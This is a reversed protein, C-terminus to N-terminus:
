GTVVNIKAPDVPGLGMKSALVLHKVDSGSFSKGYWKALPVATADVAVINRGAVVCGPYEMRGPGGPGGTTLARTADVINLDTKVATALDAIAQDLGERHFVGRDHIAGMLNKTCLSVGAAGHSKATAINIIVGSELMPKFIETKRIKVGMPVAVERFGSRDTTAIVEAGASRCADGIGTVKLCVEPTKLPHDFVVVKKAGAELCMKVVEAVVEPSTTAGIEPPTSFGINPKVLVSAGNKVFKKMGGLLEVAKRAAAGGPGKAVAVLEKEEGAFAFGSGGIALGAGGAAM